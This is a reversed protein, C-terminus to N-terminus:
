LEKLNVVNKGLPRQISKTDIVSSQRINSPTIRYPQPASNKEYALKQPSSFSIKNASTIQEAPVSNRFQPQSNNSSLESTDRTELSFVIQKTEKNVTILTNEDFSKLISALKQRDTASLQETNKTHFLYNGRVISNHKEHGLNYTYDALWNKISPRVPDPFRMLYIRNTTIAQEGIEPYTKIADSLTLTDLKAQYTKEQSDDNIIQQLIINTIEKAKTLDIPIEKALYFPIDELKLEGFYYSRIARSVDGMQIPTLSFATGLVKIKESSDSLSLKLQINKPLNAVLIQVEQFRASADTDINKSIPVIAPTTYRLIELDQITQASLYKLTNFNTQM